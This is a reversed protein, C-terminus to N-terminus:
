CLGSTPQFGLKDVSFEVKKWWVEYSSGLVKVLTFM